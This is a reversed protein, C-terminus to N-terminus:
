RRTALILSTGPSKSLRHFSLDQFGAQSLVQNMEDRSFVRGNAFLHYQLAILRVLANTASGNVKGAIQDLIAVTGGPKLAAATKRLLQINTEIDYHHMLNFLLITDYAQGWEVQWLDGQIFRIRDGLEEEAAQQRALELGAHSDLITAQVGPFHHCFAFSFTGHGGGVDLLRRSAGNLPLKKAIDGSVIRANGILTQQFSRSRDPDAEVWQYFDYPREGSRLVEASHRWLDRMAEDWFRLSAETDVVRTDLIWKQTLPTNAYRGNQPTVYGIAALAELLSAAGREQMELRQALESPSRPQEALAQFVGLRVATSITQYAMAGALDMFPAPALNLTYFATREILNPQIPM